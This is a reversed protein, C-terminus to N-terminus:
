LKANNKMLRGKYQLLFIIVEMTFYIPNKCFAAQLMILNVGSIPINTSPANFPNEDGQEDLSISALAGSIILGFLLRKFLKIEM